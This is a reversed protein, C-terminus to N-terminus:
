YNKSWGQVIPYHRGFGFPKKSISLVPPGQRRKYEAIHVRHILKNVEEIPVGYKKAIEDRMLYDEVYGKLVNDVIGYDPFADLDKQGPRLEASPPKDITSQPIVEGNRNIWRALEYVLTKMVDGIVGLGGCMDGYLTSYGLALESKNGTSLVLYGFKNSLAMLLNGRIRAQINEKTVGEERGGFSPELAVLYHDLAEMIPITQFRMNLNNALAAADDLSHQSSCYSPLRVGLVNEAGLAEVGICAVLASDIGGSLGLCAKKFGCKEAYDKVGLVLASYLDKMPDYNFGIPCAKASLNVIMQDERFGKGLQCLDGEKTVVVSYGDFIVQGSAGVQCCLIVPCNLTKAAKSCVKVRVDPKQYCYPSASLNLLVDIKYPLLEIIPDREYRTFDVYGAHQWIDECIVIGIRNGKWEWARTSVGPEFYRRENFIDYNPLLWKDQFGMLKRDQIVAASNFLEKAGHHSYRVLGILAMIGETEPIIEDIKDMMRNIFVQHFVLDEPPYGCITLEPFVVVDLGLKRALRLSEIIKKTNAELDGILPNLQAVLIKM